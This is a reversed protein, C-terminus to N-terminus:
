FQQCTRTFTNTANKFGFPVITWDYLGIKTILAINKMDELAM